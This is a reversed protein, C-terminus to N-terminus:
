EYIISLVFISTDYEIQAHNLNKPSIQFMSGILPDIWVDIDKKHFNSQLCSYDWYDCLTKVHLYFMEIDIKHTYLLLFSYDWSVCVTWVHFQSASM